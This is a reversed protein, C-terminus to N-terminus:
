PRRRAVQYGDQDVVLEYSAGPHAAKAHVVAAVPASWGGAITDIVVFDPIVPPDAPPANEAGDITGVWYVTHDTTLHSMLGIDTEVVSGDTVTALVARAGRERPSPEWSVPDVIAAAPSRPLLALAVAVALAPGAAAYWRLWTPGRQRIRRIGDVMALFVVPMLPASYHWETGWYPPNDAAFRWLLTPVVVLAWPSRLALLGTVGLTTLVTLAKRGPEAFFAEVPPRTSAGLEGVRILHDYNGGPNFAPIVVTILLVLSVLGTVVLAVGLRRAGDILLVGGVAAVTLALDEKVLLLPLTWAAVRVADGRVYAAGAWALLPVTLAVEHFDVRAASLLGFSLGYAASLAWASWPRLVTSAARGVVVVSLGFLLGQLVLLTEGFPFLRYAPALVALLPSFHDGLQLYGPGKIPVVPPELRAYASITQEFIGQDWSSAEYRWFRLLPILTTVAASLAALPLLWWWALTPPTLGPRSVM